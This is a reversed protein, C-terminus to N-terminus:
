KSVLVSMSFELVTTMAARQLGSDMQVSHQRAFEGAIKWLHLKRGVTWSTCVCQPTIGGRNQTAPQLGATTPVSHLGRSRHQSIQSKEEPLRRSFGHYTIRAQPQLGAAM